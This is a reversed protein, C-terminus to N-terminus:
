DRALLARAADRLARAHTLVAARWAPDSPSFAELLGRKAPHDPTPTGWHHLRNEARLAFLVNLNNYTGFECTLADYRVGPLRREMERILSGRIEYADKNTRDWTKVDSGFTGRVRAVRADDADGELLLTRGAYPGLGSHLEVHVIRERGKLHEELFPLVVAPAAELRAGGYFLGKPFDHQGGVVANKLAGYGHRAILWLLQPWPFDIGGPPSTPNLVADCTAYQSESGGYDSGPPACNRNLDVNNENVRRLNAMGWPNLAHVLLIPTDDANALLELQAASGPFGEVGHLGSTFVAVRRADPDGIWAWDITLGDVVDLAGHPLHATVARFRARAQEYDASFRANTDLM